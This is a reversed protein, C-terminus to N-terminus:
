PSAPKAHTRPKKDSAASEPGSFTVASGAQLKYQGDVVVREGPHLGDDILAIDGDIQAVKLPRISVTSDAGVVFAYTGQPGRQVVSAPVVVGNKRTDVLLRVNVFQGPWLALKENPFTARLRVTGTTTDIQNDVVTLTGRDLPTRSDRDIAFVALPTGASDAKLIRGLSQQPLTFIISIPKLQAIVVIGNPDSSHVINGADIQRLGTRGSIPATVRTYGLQVEAAAVAANDAQVQAQFQNAAAKYTDVTQQDIMGKQLLATYREVLSKANALQATDTALKGRAEDVAAQFTRPDIVALLDGAKVEQGEQFELSQLQGDIQTHVTVNQFATVTGIGDLYIGTDHQKVLDAVVPFPGQSGGGRRGAAGGAPARSCGAFVVSTFLLVALSLHRAPINVFERPIFPRVSEPM